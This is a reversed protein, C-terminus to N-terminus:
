GFLEQFRFFHLYMPRELCYLARLHLTQWSSQKPHEAVRQYLHKLTYGIYSSDCFDCQFKYIVRQQNVIPPKIEHVKLDSSRILLM